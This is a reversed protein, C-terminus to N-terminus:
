AWVPHEPRGQGQRRGPRGDPRPAPPRRRRTPRSSWRATWGKIYDVMADQYPKAAAADGKFIPATMFAATLDGALGALKDPRRWRWSSPADAPVQAVLDAKGTGALAALSGALPSQAKPM